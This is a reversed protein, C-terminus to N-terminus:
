EDDFGGLYEKLEELYDEAIMLKDDECLLVTDGFVDFLAENIGDALVSAMLHQETVIKSVDEKKLLARLIRVQLPDLPLDATEWAQEEQVPVEDEYGEEEEGILLSEKTAEADERIKRLGSLDISVKALSAEAQLRRDEKMASLIFPDAWADEEDSKLAQGTKLYSRFLADCRKLFDQLKKKDAYPAEYSEMHWIGYRCHYSRCENLVYDLDEIEGKKHYVANSLPYWPYSRIEGFCLTFLDVGDVKCECAKRWANAFLRRGREPDNKVAPSKELKRRSLHSLAEFVEEDTKTEPDKLIAIMRDRKMMEEDAIRRATENPLGELVAYELIWRHLNVRMKPDGIGSDLYDKEFTKIKAIVDESSSAGIGNLLEYIYIYAASAPVAMYEGKRLHTRWSFYARLQKTNLDQYVPFYSQFDGEWPYEDEYDKMFLAQKYFCEARQKSSMATYRYLKRMQFLRDPVSERETKYSSTGFPLATERHQREDEKTLSSLVVTYGYAEEKRVAEDFLKYIVQENATEDFSIGIWRGGKMRFPLGLCIEHDKSLVERGCKLDCFERIEGTQEDYQRMLLALWKETRPHCLVSFGPFDAWKHLERIRHKELAYTSLQSLEM